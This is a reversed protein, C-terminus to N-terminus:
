FRLSCAYPLLVQTTPVKFVVSDGFRVVETQEQVLGNWDNWYTLKLTAFDGHLRITPLLAERDFKLAEPRVKLRQYTLGQQLGVSDEDM